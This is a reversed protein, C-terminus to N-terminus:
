SYKLHPIVDLIKLFSFFNFMSFFGQWDVFLNFFHVSLKWFFLSSHGIAIKVFHGVDRTMMFSSQSMVESWESHSSLFSFSKFSLSSPRICVLGAMMTVLVSSEWVIWFLVVRQGLQMAEWGEWSVGCGVASISIGVKWSKRNNRLEAKNRDRSYYATPLSKEPCTLKGDYIGM